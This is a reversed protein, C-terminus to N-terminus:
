RDCACAMLNLSNDIPPCALTQTDTVAAQVLDGTEADTIKLDVGDIKATLRATVAFAVAGAMGCDDFQLRFRSHVSQNPQVTDFFARLSPWVGALEYRDTAPSTRGTIRRAGTIFTFGPLESATGGAPSTEFDVTLEVNNLCAGGQNCYQISVDLFPCLQPLLRLRLPRRQLCEASALWRERNLHYMDRVGEFQKGLSQYRDRVKNMYKATAVYDPCDCCPECDNGIQLHAYRPDDNHPWGGADKTTGALPDPLEATPISGPTLKIQPMTVLPNMSTVRTPQRVWYCDTASLFFDGHETPSVGNVQGVQLIDPTCDPFIGLGAGASANFTVRTHRRKGDPEQTPDADIRMNYGAVFEVATKRLNDLVVILSRVRKPLRAVVREDLVAKAPFFYSPYDKPDPWDNPNWSTHYVLSVVQDTTHRWVVVRLRDTWTRTEYSVDPHTSDFVTRGDHDVIIIDHGNKPIPMCEHITVSGESSLSSERSVCISSWSGDGDVTPIPFDPEETGFGSLWYIRFPLKFAPLDSYDSPQDFSIHLDALLYRVDETPEVLPFDVGSQPQAVGIGQRGYTNRILGPPNSWWATIMQYFGAFGKM